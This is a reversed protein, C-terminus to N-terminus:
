SSRDLGGRDDVLRLAAPPEPGRRLLVLNVDSATAGSAFSPVRLAGFGDGRVREAFAQTAAVVGALMEGRWTGSSLLAASTGAAELTGADTADFVREIRAGYAVLVTPQLHDVQNAERTATHPPLATYPAAVGKPDFRGGFRRAGEGSLPDRAHRPDLARCLLGEFM